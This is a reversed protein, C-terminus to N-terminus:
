VQPAPGAPILKEIGSPSTRWTTFFLAALKSARWDGAGSSESGFTRTIYESTGYERGGIPIPGDDAIPSDLLMSQGGSLTGNTSLDILV